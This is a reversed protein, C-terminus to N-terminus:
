RFKLSPDHLMCNASFLGAKSMSQTLNWRTASFFITLLVLWLIKFQICLLSPTPLVLLMDCVIAHPTNRGLERSVPPTKIKGGDDCTLHDANIFICQYIMTRSPETLPRAEQGSRLIGMRAIKMGRNGKNFLVTSSKPKILTRGNPPQAVLDAASNRMKRRASRAQHCLRWNGLPGPMRMLPGMQTPASAIHM